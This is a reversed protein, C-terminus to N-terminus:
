RIMYYGLLAGVLSCLFNTTGKTGIGREEFVGFFTDAISGGLGALTVM